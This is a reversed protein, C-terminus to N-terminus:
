SAKSLNAVDILEKNVLNDWMGKYKHSQLSKKILRNIKTWDRSGWAHKVVQYNKELEIWLQADKMDRANHPVIAVFGLRKSLKRIDQDEVCLVGIKKKHQLFTDKEQKSKCFSSYKKHLSSTAKISHEILNKSVDNDNPSQVLFLFQSVGPHYLFERLKSLKKYEDTGEQADIYNGIKDVANECFLVVSFEVTEAPVDLYDIFSIEKKDPNDILEIKEVYDNDSSYKQKLLKFNPDVYFEERSETSFLFLQDTFGKYLPTTKM